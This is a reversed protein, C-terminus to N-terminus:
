IRGIKEGGDTGADAGAAVFDAGLQDDLEFRLECVCIVIEVLRARAFLGVGELPEVHHWGSMLRWRFVDVETEGFGIAGM